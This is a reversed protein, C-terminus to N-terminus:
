GTALAAEIQEAVADWTRPAAAAGAAERKHVRDASSTSAVVRLVDVLDDVRPECLDIEEIHEEFGLTNYTMSRAVPLNVRRVPLLWASEDDCHDLVAGFRSVIPPTGCAMAELTPLAFGEARFPLVLADAGRYLAALSTDVLEDDLYVLTPDRAAMPSGGLHQERYFVDRTNDKVVLLVDDDARFAQRYAALLVDFGKRRVTAGVWLFTTAAEGVRRSPGDPHLVEPDIGHPVVRVLEEPVGGRVALDRNWRSHVWLEDFSSAVVEAWRRPYPGFDWTRVLIRRAAADGDEPDIPGVAREYDHLIAADVPERDDDAVVEHGRAALGTAWRANVRAFASTACRDGILRIRM